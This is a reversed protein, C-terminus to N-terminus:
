RMKTYGLIAFDPLEDVGCVACPRDITIIRDVPVPGANLVNGNGAILQGILLHVHNDPEQLPEVHLLPERSRQACWPIL